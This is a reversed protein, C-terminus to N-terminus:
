LPAAGGEERYIHKVEHSVLSERDGGGGGRLFARPLLPHLQYLPLPLVPLLNTDKYHGGGAEGELRGGGAEPRM